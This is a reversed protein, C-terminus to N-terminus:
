IVSLNKSSKQDLISQQDDVLPMQFFGPQGTSGYFLHANHSAGVIDSQAQWEAMKIAMPDSNIKQGAKYLGDARIFEAEAQAQANIKLIEPHNM